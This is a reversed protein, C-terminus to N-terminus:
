LHQSYIIIAVLTSTIVCLLVFAAMMDKIKGILVDYRPEIKDCLDEITTNIVEASLTLGIAFILIAIEIYSLRFYFFSCIVVLSIFCDIKFNREEQWVLVLGNLAYKFSALIKKIM